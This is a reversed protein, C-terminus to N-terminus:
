ALGSRHPTGPLGLGLYGSSLNFRHTPSMSFRSLAALFALLPMILHIEWQLNSFSILVLTPHNEPNTTSTPKSSVAASGIYAM